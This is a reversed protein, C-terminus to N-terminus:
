HAKAAAGDLGSTPTPIHEVGSGDRDRRVPPRAARRVPPRGRCSRSGCSGAVNRAPVAGLVGLPKWQVERLADCSIQPRLAQLMGLTHSKYSLTLSQILLPTIGLNCKAPVLQWDPLLPLCQGRRWLASSRVSGRRSMWDSCLKKTGDHEQAGSPLVSALGPPM